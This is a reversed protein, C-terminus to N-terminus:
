LSLRKLGNREVRSFTPCFSSQRPCPLFHHFELLQCGSLVTLNEIWSNEGSHPLFLRAVLLRSIHLFVKLNKGARHYINLIFSGRPESVVTLRNNRILNSDEIVSGGRDM